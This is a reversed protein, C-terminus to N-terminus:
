TVRYEMLLNGTPFQFLKTVILFSLRYSNQSIKVIRWYLAIILLYPRLRGYFLNRSQFLKAAMFLEGYGPSQYPLYSKITFLLWSSSKTTIVCIGQSYHLDVSWDNNRMQGETGRSTDLIRNFTCGFLQSTDHSRKGVLLRRYGIDSNKENQFFGYWSLHYCVSKSHRM